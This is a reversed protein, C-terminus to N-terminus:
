NGTHLLLLRKIRRVIAETFSYHTHRKCYSQNIDLIKKLLTENLVVPANKKLTQLDERTVGLAAEEMENSVGELDGGGEQVWSTDQLHRMQRQRQAISQFSLPQQNSPVCRLLYYELHRWIIFLCNELIYSLHQLEQSKSAVIQHLRQRAVAQRQHSSMKESGTVDSLQKLDESSLDHISSLKRQHQRHSDSVAQFQNACQRLQYVVIGLSPAQYTSLSGM